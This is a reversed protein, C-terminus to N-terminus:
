LDCRPRQEALDITCLEPHSVYDANGTKLANLAEDPTLTTPAGEAARAAWPAAGLGIAVLGATGLRLIDRRGIGDSKRNNCM